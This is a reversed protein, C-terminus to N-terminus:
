EIEKLADNLKKKVDDEEKQQKKLKDVEKSPDDGLKKKM